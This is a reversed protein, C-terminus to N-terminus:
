PNLSNLKNLDRYLNEDDNLLLGQQVQKQIGNWFEYSFVRRRANQITDLFHLGRLTHMPENCTLCTKFRGHIESMRIIQDFIWEMEELTMEEDRPNYNRLQTINTLHNITIYNDCFKPLKKQLSECARKCDYFFHMNQYAPTMKIKNIVRTNALAEVLKLGSLPTMKDMINNRIIPDEMIQELISQTM